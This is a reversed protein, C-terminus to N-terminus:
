SFNLFTLFLSHNSHTSLSNHTHNLYTYYIYAPPYSPSAHRHYAPYSSPTSLLIPSCSSPIFQTHAPQWPTLLLSPHAVPRADARRAAAGRRSLSPAVSLPASLCPHAASRRPARPRAGCEAGIATGSSSRGAQRRSRHPADTTGAGSRKAESRRGAATAAGAGGLGVATVVTGGRAHDGIGLASTGAPRAAQQAACASRQALPQRVAAGNREGLM